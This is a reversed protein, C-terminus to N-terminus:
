PAQFLPRSRGTVKQETLLAVLRQVIEPHAGYLNNTEYPDEDLNYLQGVGTAGILDVPGSFIPQWEPTVNRIGGSGETDLILKWPGQRIAFVGMYSHTVM